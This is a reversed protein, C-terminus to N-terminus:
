ANGPIQLTIGPQYQVTFPMRTLVQGDDEGPACLLVDFWYIGEETVEFAPAQQIHDVGLATSVFNVPILDIVDGQLGSPEHPRLKLFYRGKAQDAWLNIILKYIALSFAPMQNQDPGTVTVGDVINIVSLAGSQAGRIFQEAFVALQVHPGTSEAM